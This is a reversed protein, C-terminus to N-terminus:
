TPIVQFLSPYQVVREGDGEVSEGNRVGRSAVEDGGGVNIIANLMVVRLHIPGKSLAIGDVMTDQLNDWDVVGAGREHGVFDCDEVMKGGEGISNVINDDRLEGDVNTNGESAVLIIFFDLIM